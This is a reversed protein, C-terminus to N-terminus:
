KARDAIAPPDPKNAIGRLHAEIGQLYRNSEQIVAKQQNVLNSVNQIIRDDGIAISKSLDAYRDSLLKIGQNTNQLKTNVDKLLNFMM